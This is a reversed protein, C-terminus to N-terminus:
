KPAGLILSINQGGFGFSNSLIYKMDKQLPVEKVVNLSINEDVQKINMTPPVEAHKLSLLSLVAEIAGAACLTHGTVSKNSTVPIQNTREKFLQNIGLSEMKDNEPTSTGHANISDIDECSLGADNLAKEMCRVIHLGSPNSRTKHYNDTVAGYGMVYGQADLELVNKIDDAVLILAAGGEGIVFGDRNKDFPRSAQMPEENSRSLASLLSFRIVNEECVYADAGVVVAVKCDGRRLADTALGIATAGSACATTVTVVKGEIGVSDALQAGYYGISTKRYTSVDQEAADIGSEQVDLEKFSERSGFLERMIEFRENWGPEVQETAYFLIADKLYDSPLKAQELAEDLVEKALLHNREADSIRVDVDFKDVTAGFNTKLGVSNFREFRNVHSVGARIKNWNEALGNGVSTTIGMGVVAVPKKTYTNDSM